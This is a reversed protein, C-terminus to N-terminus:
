RARRAPRRGTTGGTLGEAEDEHPEGIADHKPLPQVTHFRNRYAGIWDGAIERQATPLDLEGKCVLRHLENELADKVHANWPETVYSEPWLNKASNSGGLQLSILHDVEYQGPRRQTIGYSEYVKRKVSSPVNRVKRAYGPVCIDAATVPFTAGPTKVPDPLLPQLPDTSAPPAVRAQAATPTRAAAERAAVHAQHGRWWVLLAVLAFALVLLLV